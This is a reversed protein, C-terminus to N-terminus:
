IKKKPIQPLIGSAKAQELVAQRLCAAHSIGKQRSLQDIIDLEIENVRVQLKTTRNTKM